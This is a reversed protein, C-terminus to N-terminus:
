KCDENEFHAGCEFAEDFAADMDERADEIFTGILKSAQRKTLRRAEKLECIDNAVIFNQQKATALDPVSLRASM